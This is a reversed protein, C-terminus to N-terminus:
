TASEFIGSVARTASRFIPSVPFGEYLKTYHISYSTIVSMGTNACRRPPIAHRKLFFEVLEAPFVLARQLSPSRLPDLRLMGLALQRCPLPDFQHQIRVGEHLEVSENLVAAGIELHVYYSRIAYM